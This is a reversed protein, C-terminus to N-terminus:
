LDYSPPTKKALTQVSLIFDFKTNFLFPAASHSIKKKRERLRKRLALTPTALMSLM